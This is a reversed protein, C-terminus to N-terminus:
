AALRYGVAPENVILEPSAPDRELKQRLARIAVRLYETQGEQAPGWATRLLHSHSLVRGPHKALEALVAYEKPTLHVYKGNRMVRRQVMDITVGKVEIPRQESDPELELLNSVYREMKVTESAIASAIAKDETSTRRLERSAAAIAHIRPSLDRGISALLASRVRDRERLSALDRAERELRARELALAVQDLLSSLLPQQDPAVSISDDDRVLGLAALAKGGSLIGHFQWDTPFPRSAGRGASEGSELVSAATAIESPSMPVPVPDSALTRPAPLGEVMVSNCEFIRGIEGCTVSAIEQKDSCSLLRAAFGAVTANRNAHETALAAQERVSSALKSTVTAVLFLIVVTVIDAPRDMRFTHFPPTFFFNYALASALGAALAPWLGFLIASALITPLYLLDVASNGWRPALFTGAITSIAVMALAAVYPLFIAAASVSDRDDPASAHVLMDMPM